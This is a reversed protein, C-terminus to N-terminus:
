QIRLPVDIVVVRPGGRLLLAERLLATRRGRLLPDYWRRVVRESLLVAIDRDPYLAALRGVHELLPEVLERYKTEIVTLKPVPRGAASAPEGVLSDWCVTLDPQALDPENLLQVAQVDASVRLALELARRTIRDLREIPVVVVPPVLAAAYSPDSHADALGGRGLELVPVRPGHVGGTAVHVL